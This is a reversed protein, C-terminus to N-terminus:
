QFAINHPGGIGRCAVCIAEALAEREAEALKPIREGEFTLRQLTWPLSAATLRFTLTLTLPHTGPLSAIAELAIRYAALDFTASRLASVSLVRKSLPTSLLSFRHANPTAPLLYPIYLPPATLEKVKSEPISLRTLSLSSRRISDSDIRLRTLHPHRSVLAMLDAYDLNTKPEVALNQMHMGLDLSALVASYASDTLGPVARLIFEDWRHDALTVLTLQEEPLSQIRMWDNFLLRRIDHFIREHQPSPPNSARRYVWMSLIAFNIVGAVLYVLFIPLLTTTASSPIRSLIYATEITKQIMGYFTQSQHQRPFFTVLVKYGAQDWSKTVLMHAETHPKNWGCRNDLFFLRSRSRASQINAESIGFRALYPLMALRRFSSSLQIVKWLDRDELFSCIHNLLENPLKDM